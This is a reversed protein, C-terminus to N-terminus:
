LFGDHLGGIPHKEIFDGMMKCWCDCCLIGFKPTLFMPKTNGGCNACEEEQVDKLQKKLKRIRESDLNRGLRREHSM